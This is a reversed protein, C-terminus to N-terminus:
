LEAAVTALLTVTDRPSLAVEELMHEFADEYERVRVDDEVVMGDLMNELYVLPGRVGAPTLITFPFSCGRYVPADYPIVRISARGSEALNILHDVQERMLDPGGIGPRIAAEPLAITLEVPNPGSLRETRAMRADVLQAVQAPRLVGEGGILETAYRRTQALGHVLLPNYTRIRVATEELRFFRRLREPVAASWPAPSRRKRAKEALVEIESREDGQVQYLDLLGQLELKSISTRGREISGIKDVSCGLVVAAEERTRRAGRRFSSLKGGVELKFDASSAFAEADSEVEAPREAAARGHVDTDSHAHDSMPTRGRITRLRGSVALLLREGM